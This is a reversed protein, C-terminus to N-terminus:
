LRALLREVRPLLGAYGYTEIGSQAQQIHDRAIAPDTPGQRAIALEALDLQTRAIWYPAHIREHMSLADRLHTEADDYRRLLTALRGLPRAAAGWDLIHEYAFRSAYPVLKEYLLPAADRRGMDAACDAYQGVAGIWMIDFPLDSFGAAYGIDFLAACDDYRGLECYFNMLAMRLAPLTPNQALRQAALDVFEALRGQQQSRQVLQGGYVLLAHPHSSRTGIDFAANSDAEADGVRGALLYRWSRYMLFTWQQYPLGTREAITEMATLCADFEELDGTEMVAGTAGKTLSLGAKHILRTSIARYVIGLVKGM